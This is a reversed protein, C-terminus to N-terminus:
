QNQEKVSKGWGGVGLCDCADTVYVVVDARGKIDGVYAVHLNASGPDFGVGCEQNENKLGFGGGRLSRQL